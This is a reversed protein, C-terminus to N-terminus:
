RKEKFILRKIFSGKKKIFGFKNYISYIVRSRNSEDDISKADYNWANIIVKYDLKLLKLLYDVLDCIVDMGMLGDIITFAFTNNCVIFPEYDILGDDYEDSDLYYGSLRENIGNYTINKNIDLPIDVGDYYDYIDEYLMYAFLRIDNDLKDLCCSDSELTFTYITKMDFGGTKFEIM